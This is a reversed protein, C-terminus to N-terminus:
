IDSSILVFKYDVDKDLGLPLHLEGTFDSSPSRPRASELTLISALFTQGM